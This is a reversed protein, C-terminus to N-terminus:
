ELRGRQRFEEILADRYADPKIGDRALLAQFPPDTAVNHAVLEAIEHATWLTDGPSEDIVEDVLGKIQHYINLEGVTYARGAM